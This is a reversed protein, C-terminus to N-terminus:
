SVSTSAPADPRAPRKLRLAPREVLYWSATGVAILAAAAALAVSAHRLVTREYTFWDTNAWHIMSTNWLFVGYSIVGLGHLPWARLSRDTATREVGFVAPLVLCLACATYFLQPVFRFGPTYGEAGLTVGKLALLGLGVAWWGLDYRALREFRATRGHAVLVAGAMGVAFTPLFAPLWTLGLPWNACALQWAMGGVALAM